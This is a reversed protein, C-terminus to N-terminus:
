KAMTLGIRGNEEVAPETPKAATAAAARISPEGSELSQTWDALFEARDEAHLRDSWDM